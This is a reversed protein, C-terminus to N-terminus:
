CLAGTKGMIYLLSTIDQDIRLFLCMCNVVADDRDAGLQKSKGLLRSLKYM